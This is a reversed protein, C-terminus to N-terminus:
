NTSSEVKVFRLVVDGRSEFWLEVPQSRTLEYRDVRSLADLYESELAMLEAPGAMETSGLSSFTVANDHGFIADGFYSNVGANGGASLVQTFLRLWAYSPASALQDLWANEGSLNLTVTASSPPTHGGIEVLQWSTDALPNAEIRLASLAYLGVLLVGAIAVGIGFVVAYRAVPSSFSKLM